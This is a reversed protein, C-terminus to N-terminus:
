RTNGESPTPATTDLGAFLDREPRGPGAQGHVLQYYETAFLPQGLHNSLAFSSGNVTIQTAHAAMAAAKRGAHATGDLVTTVVEDAVVGPVDAPQATGPFAAEAATAALGADLVSRPMRNWYVKAIRWPAGLEPRHAPDAALEYARMAVRHAQIHDPHGYGGNEDYTVLVQPRVERVVAVLHDAAEDVDAQWFCGPADNDPVGMMGSDRYRGPGGLFRFDTVGLARMAETLEGIRHAGLTDDRDATLHALEPQIVEGGEGLTCTVLTVRAGEAAYRAMTAGNGISEDDPHAHVLLLRRGTTATM